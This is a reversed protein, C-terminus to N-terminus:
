FWSRTYPDFFQHGTKSPPVPPLLLMPCVKQMPPKQYSRQCNTMFDRTEPPITYTPTESTSIAAALVNTNPPAFDARSTTVGTFPVSPPKSPPETPPPTGAAVLASTPPPPYSAQTTTTGAFPLSAPKPPAVPPPTALGSAKLLQSGVCGTYTSSSTTTGSFPLNPTKPPTTDFAAISALLADTTVPRFTERYHSSGSFPIPVVKKPCSHMGCTCLEDVCFAAHGSPSNSRRHEAEPPLELHRAPQLVEVTASQSTEHHTAASQSTKHQPTPSNGSEEVHVPLDDHEPPYSSQALQM